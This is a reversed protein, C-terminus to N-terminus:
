NATMTALVRRYVNFSGPPVELIDFDIGVLHPNFKSTTVRFRCTENILTDHPFSVRLFSTSQPKGAGIKENGSLRSEVIRCMVGTTPVWYTPYTNLAAGSPKRAVTLPDPPFYITVTDFFYPAVIRRLKKIHALTIM